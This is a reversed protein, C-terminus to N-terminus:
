GSLRVKEKRKRESSRKNVEGIGVGRASFDEGVEVGIIAEGDGASM